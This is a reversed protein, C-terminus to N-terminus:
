KFPIDARPRIWIVFMGEDTEEEQEKQKQMRLTLIHEKRSM